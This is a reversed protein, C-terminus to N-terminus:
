NEIGKINNFITTANAQFFKETCGEKETLNFLAEVNRRYLDIVNLGPYYVSNLPFDSGFIIRDAGIMNFSSSFEDPECFSSEMYICSRSKAADIAEKVPRSHFLIVPQTHTDPISNAISIPNCGENGTHIAVPVKWREAALFVPRLIDYSVDYHDAAPHLKIGVYNDPIQDSNLIELAKIRVPSLWLWFLPATDFIVSPNHFSNILHENISEEWSVPACVFREIPLYRCLEQLYTPTLNYQYDYNGVHVHIDFISFGEKFIGESYNM